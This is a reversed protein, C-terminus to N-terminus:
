GSVNRELFMNVATKASGGAKWAKSFDAGLRCANERKKEGIESRCADVIRRFEETVAGRTGQPVEGSFLLQLGKGTRVEVLHFAVDLNHTLHAAAAPQDGDFPWCILPIGNSLAEFIGGHGCHTMFWGTVPHRLIFQQPGWPTLMGINSAQIKNRVAPSITAILSAYCLIFPFNKEILVNVLLDLHDQVSPWFITGFSILLVSNKGYRAMATDLFVHIESEPPIISPGGNAPPLLPGAAYLPKGLASSIWHDLALLSERDYAECTNVFIGDCQMFMSSFEQPFFEYDHMAPLGPIRIISGETHKFIQDGIDVSSKGTRLAEADTRAGFDGLGGLSEPGFLRLLAASGCSAFAFVPIATGSIARTQQLQVISFFDMIIATPPPFSDFVTGTTPCAIVEGEFVAQYAAPYFDALPRVLDPIRVSDSQFISIIRYRIRALAEHGAPFQAAVESKAQRLWNPAMLITVVIDAREAALRGGLVCLPRTHRTDEFLNLVHKDPPVLEKACLIRVEPGALCCRRSFELFIGFNPRSERRVFVGVVCKFPSSHYNSRFTDAFYPKPEADHPNHYLALGFTSEIM